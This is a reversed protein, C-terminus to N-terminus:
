DSSLIPLFLFYLCCARLGVLVISQIGAIFRSDDRGTHLNGHIFELSQFVQIRNSLAQKIIFRIMAKM